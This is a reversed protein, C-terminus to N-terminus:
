AAVEWLSAISQVEGSRVSQFDPLRMLTAGLGGRHDILASLGSQLAHSFDGNELLFGTESGKDTVAGKGKQQYMLATFRDSFTICRSEAFIQTLFRSTLPPGRFPFEM